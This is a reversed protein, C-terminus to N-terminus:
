LRAWSSIFSFGQDFQNLHRSSKSAKEASLRRPMAPQNKTKKKLTEEACILAIKMHEMSFHFVHIESCAADFYEQQGQDCQRRQRRSERRRAKARKSVTEEIILIAQHITLMQFIGIDVAATVHFRVGSKRSFRRL